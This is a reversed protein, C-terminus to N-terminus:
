SLLLGLPMDSTLDYPLVHLWARQQAKHEPHYYEYMGPAASVHYQYTSGSAFDGGFVSWSAQTLADSVLGHTQNGQGFVWTVTDGQHVHRSALSTNPGWSIVHSRAVCVTWIVLSVVLTSMM